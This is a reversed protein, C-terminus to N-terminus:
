KRVKGMEKSIRKKVLWLVAQFQLPSLGVLSAARVYDARVINYFQEPIQYTGGDFSGFWGQIAHSDICAGLYTEWEKICMFFDNVKPGGLCDHGQLLWLAKIVNAKLGGSPPASIREEMALVPKVGDWNRPTQLYASGGRWLEIDPVFCGGQYHRIVWEAALMNNEWPCKPSIAAAVYIVTDLSLNYLNAIRVAERRAAPYWDIGARMDSDNALAYLKLLNQVGTEINAKSEEVSYRYNSTSKTPM